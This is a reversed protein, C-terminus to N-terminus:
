KNEGNFLEAIKAYEKVAEDYEKETLAVLEEYGERDVLKGLYLAKHENKPDFKNSNLVAIKMDNCYFFLEVMDNKLTYLKNQKDEM